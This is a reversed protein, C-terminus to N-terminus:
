CKPLEWSHEPCELTVGVVDKTADKLDRKYSRMLGLVYRAELASAARVDFNWESDFTSTDSKTQVSYQCLPGDDCDKDMRILRRELEAFLDPAKDITAAWSFHSTFHFELMADEPGELIFDVDLDIRDIRPLARLAGFLRELGPLILIEFHKSISGTEITLIKDPDLNKGFVLEPNGSKAYRGLTECLDRAMAVLDTDPM